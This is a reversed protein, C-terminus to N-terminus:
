SLPPIPAVPTAKPERMSTACEITAGEIWDRSANTIPIAAWIPSTVIEQRVLTPLTRNNDNFFVAKEPATVLRAKLKDAGLQFLLTNQGKKVVVPLRLWGLSYTDGARPEGNVYVMADGSAELLMIRDAPSDFSAFAYGGRLKPTDLSGDAAAKVASWMSMKGDPSKVTQGATPPKWTGDVIQVELADRHLPLRGYQGVAPLALYDTPIIVSPPGAPLNAPPQPPKKADDAIASAVAFALVTLCSSVRSLNPKMGGITPGAPPHYFAHFHRNPSVLSVNPVATGLITCPRSRESNGSNESPACFEEGPNQAGLATNTVRDMVITPSPIQHVRMPLGAHPKLATPSSNRPAPVDVTDVM